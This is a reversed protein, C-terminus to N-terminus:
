TQKYEKQPESLNPIKGLDWLKAIEEDLFCKEPSLKSIDEPDMREEWIINMWGEIGVVAM